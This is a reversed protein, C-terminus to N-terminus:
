FDWVSLQNGNQSYEQIVFEDPEETRNWLVSSRTDFRQYIESDIATIRGDDERVKHMRWTGSLDIRQSSSADYSPEDRYPSDHKEPRMPLIGRNDGQVRRWLVSEEKSPPLPHIWMGDGDTFELRAKWGKPDHASFTTIVDGDRTYGWVQVDDEERGSQWVITKAFAQMYRAQDVVVEKGDRRRIKEMKWAGRLETNETEKIPWMSRVWKTRPIGGSPDALTLTLLDDSVEIWFPNRKAFPDIATDGLGGLSFKLSEQPSMQLRRDQIHFRGRHESPGSTNDIFQYSDGEFYIYSDSGTLGNLM